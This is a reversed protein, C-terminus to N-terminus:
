MWYWSNGSHSANLTWTHRGYYVTIRTFIYQGNRPYVHATAKVPDCYGHACDPRCVLQWLAGTAWADSQTWKTWRLRGM